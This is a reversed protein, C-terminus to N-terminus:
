SEVKSKRSEVIDEAGANPFGAGTRGRELSYPLLGEIPKDLDLALGSHLNGGLNSGRLMYVSRQLGADVIQPDTCSGAGIRHGYLRDGIAQVISLGLHDEDFIRDVVVGLEPQAVDSSQLRRTNRNRSNMTTASMTGTPVHGVGHTGGTRIYGHQQIGTVHGAVALQYGRGHISYALQSEITRHDLYVAAGFLCEGIGSLLDCGVLEPVDKGRSKEGKGLFCVMQRQMPQPRHDVLYIGIYPRMDFSAHRQGLLYALILLGFMHCGELGLAELSDEMLAQFPGGHVMDLGIGDSHDHVGKM